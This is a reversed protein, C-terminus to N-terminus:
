MNDSMMKVEQRLMEESEGTRKQLVKLMEEPKEDIAKWDDETLSTWKASAASKFDDWKNDLAAWDIIDDDMSEASERGVMADQDLRARSIAAGAEEGDNYSFEQMEDIQEETLDLILHEREGDLSMDEYNVTVMKEGMGLFGGLALIASLEGDATVVLDDIEGIEEEQLNIVDMGILDSARLQYPSDASRMLDMSDANVTTAAATGLLLVACFQLKGTM